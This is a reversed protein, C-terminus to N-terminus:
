SEPNCTVSVGTLVPNMLVARRNCSMPIERLPAKPAVLDQHGPGPEEMEEGGVEERETGM